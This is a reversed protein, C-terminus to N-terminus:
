RKPTNGLRITATKKAQSEKIRILPSTQAQKPQASEKIRILLSAQAQKSQASEKKLPPPITPDQRPNRQLVKVPDAPPIPEENFFNSIHPIEDTGTLQTEVTVNEPASPQEEEISVFQLISEADTIPVPQKTPTSFGLPQLNQELSTTQSTIGDAAPTRADVTSLPTTPSNQPKTIPKPRSSPKKHNTIYIRYVLLLILSASSIGYYWHAWAATGDTGSFLGHLMGMIYTAFNAYHIMRWTKQGIFQRIYFSLLVIIWSYFAVQGLGVWFPEYRISFPVLLHGLSFDVYHDGMLVLGHYVAFLLGLLSVYEHIAFATPAGPWLRALKNTLGLGMAMSVWLISLAIFGGARSLYWYIKPANGSFSYALNTILAPLLPLVVLVLAFVVVLRLTFPHTNIPSEQVKTNESHDVNM